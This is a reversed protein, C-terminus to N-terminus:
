KQKRLWKLTEEFSLDPPLPTWGKKGFFTQLVSVTSEPLQFTPVWTSVSNDIKCSLKRPGSAVIYSPDDMPQALVPLGPDGAGEVQFDSMAQLIGWYAKLHAGAKPSFNSWLANLDSYIQQGSADKQPVHFYGNLEWLEWMTGGDKFSKKALKALNQVMKEEEADLSADNDKPKLHSGARALEEHVAQFFAVLAQQSAKAALVRMLYEGSDLDRLFWVHSGVSTVKLGRVRMGDNCFLVTDDFAKTREFPVFGMYDLALRARQKKDANPWLERVNKMRDDLRVLEEETLLSPVPFTGHLNICDCTFDGEGRLQFRVASVPYPLWAIETALLLVATFM